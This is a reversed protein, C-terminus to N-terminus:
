SVEVIFFSIFESDAATASVLVIMEEISEISNSGDMYEIATEIPLVNKENVQIYRDYNPSGLCYKAERESEFLKNFELGEVVKPCYEPDHLKM